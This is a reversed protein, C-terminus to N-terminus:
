DSSEKRKVDPTINCKWWGKSGLCELYEEIVPNEALKLKALVGCNGDRADGLYIASISYQRITSETSAIRSELRDGMPWIALPASFQIADNEGVIDLLLHELNQGMIEAPVDFHVTLLKLGGSVEKVQLAEPAIVIDAEDCKYSENSKTSGSIPVM